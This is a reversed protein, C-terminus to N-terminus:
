TSTPGRTVQKTSSQTTETVHTFVKLHHILYHCPCLGCFLSDLFPRITEAPNQFVFQSVSPNSLLSGGDAGFAGIQSVYNVGRRQRMRSMRVHTYMHATGIPHGAASSTSCTAIAIGGLKSFVRGQSLRARLGPSPRKCRNNGGRVKRGVRGCAPPHNNSRVNAQALM